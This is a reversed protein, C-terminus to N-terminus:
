RTSAARSTARWATTRSCTGSGTPRITSSGTASSTRGIVTKAVQGPGIVAESLYEGSTLCLQPRVVYPSRDQDWGIRNKVAWSAVTEKEPPLFGRFAEIVLRRDDVFAVDDM